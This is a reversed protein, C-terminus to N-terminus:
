DIQEATVTINATYTGSTATESANLYLRYTRSETEGPEFIGIESFVGNTNGAAIETGEGDTVKATVGEPWRTLGDENTLTIVAGCRAAVETNGPTVTFTYYEGDTNDANIEAAESGIEATIGWAAARASDSGSDTVSYRALLRASICSAVAVACLFM